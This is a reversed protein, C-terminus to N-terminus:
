SKTRRTFCRVTPHVGDHPNPSYVRIRRIPLRLYVFLM